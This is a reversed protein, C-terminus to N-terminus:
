GGYMFTPSGMGSGRQTLGIAGCWKRLGQVEGGTEM